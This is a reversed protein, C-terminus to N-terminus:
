SNQMLRSGSQEINEATKIMKLQMDFQRQLTVLQVLEEATNVNSREISGLRLSVPKLSGINKRYLEKDKIFFLGDEAKRVNRYDPNVLFLKGAVLRKDSVSADSSAFTVSGDKEIRPNKSGKPLFITGSLGVAPRGHKDVLKNERSLMFSGYRSLKEKGQKDLVTFFGQGNIAVDLDEGTKLLPGPTLDHAPKETMSFVRTPLGEGFVPMARAQSMAKKFGDTNANAINNARVALANFNERAGTSSIYLLKDM